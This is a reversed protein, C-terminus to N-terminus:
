HRPRVFLEADGFPSKDFRYGNNVAFARLGHDLSVPESDEYGTVIAGPPHESLFRDLTRPSLTLYARQEEDSLLNGSRYAFPGNAFRPDLPFGSDVVAQPSLSAVVGQAGADRLRAGIWHAERTMRIPNNKGAAIRSMWLVPQVLGIIAAVAFAGSVIRRWRARVAGEDWALGLRVFLIPLLPILYQRWTPTPLLAAIVGAVILLDLLLHAGARKGRRFLTTAVVALAVCAPGRLLTVATDLLKWDLGLRYGLGISRYWQFPAEAGYDFVGYIFAAPAQAFIIVVPVMGVVAGVACALANILSHRSRYQMVTLLHFLGVAAAPVAYSLKTGVAASFALGAIAWPLASQRGEIAVTAALLGIMLLVAPMMDNRVLTAGFQFSYTLSLLATACLATREGVGLRRQCSFVLWLTALAAIATAIRLVIYSYGGSLAAIPATVFSQLPTQLHLFDVFPLGSRTLAAAALYQSEDHNVPVIPALGILGFIMLAWMLRSSIRWDLPTATSLIQM